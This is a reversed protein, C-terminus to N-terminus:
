ETHLFTFDVQGNVIKTATRGAPLHQPGRTRGRAGVGVAGRTGGRITIAVRAAALDAAQPWIKNNLPM